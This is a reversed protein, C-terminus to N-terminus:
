EYNVKRWEKKFNSQYDEILPPTSNLDVRNLVPTNEM